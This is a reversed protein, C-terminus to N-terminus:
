EIIVGSILSSAVVPNRPPRVDNEVNEASIVVSRRRRSHNHPAIPMADCTTPEIRSVIMPM